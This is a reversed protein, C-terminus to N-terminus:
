GCAAVSVAQRAIGARVHARARHLRSRVTGVPLELAEAIEQYELGELDRLLFVARYEPSMAEVLRDICALLERTELEREPDCLTCAVVAEGGEEEWRIRRQRTRRAHLSRHVVARVLWPRLHAPISGMRWLAILAEQVADAAADDDGLIRRATARVAPLLPRIRAETDPDIPSPLAACTVGGPAAPGGSLESERRM